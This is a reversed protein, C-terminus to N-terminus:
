RSARLRRGARRWRARGRHGCHARGPGPGPLQEPGLSIGPLSARVPPDVEGERGDVPLLQGAAEIRGAGRGPSLRGGLRNPGSSSSCCGSSRCRAPPRRGRTVSPTTTPSGARTPRADSSRAPPPRSRRPSSRTETPPSASSGTGSARSLSASRASRCRTPEAGQALASVVSEWVDYHSLEGADPLRRGPAPAVRARSWRARGTDVVDALRQSVLRDASGAPRRPASSSPM